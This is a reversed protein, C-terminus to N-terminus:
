AKVQRIAELAAKRTPLHPDGEVPSIKFGELRLSASYNSQRHKAFYAKKVELSPKQM